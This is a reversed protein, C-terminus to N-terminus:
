VDGIKLELGNSTVMHAANINLAFVVSQNLVKTSVLSPTNPIALLRFGLGGVMTLSDVVTLQQYVRCGPMGLSTLDIGGPIPSLSLISLGAVAGTPMNTTTLNVTTGLVPRAVSNLTVHTTGSTSNCVSVSGNLSASIDISGPDQANALSYGVLYSGNVTISQYIAHV